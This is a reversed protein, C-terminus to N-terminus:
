AAMHAEAGTQRTGSRGESAAETSDDHDEDVAVERIGGLGDLLDDVLKSLEGTVIAVNADFADVEAEQGAFVVDLFQLKKLQMDDSLMFSVRSSWTMAVKTPMKGAQLHQKIEDLDLNHRSYKVASKAEDVAKLECDQDLTFPAPAVSERLWEAMGTAPAIATQYRSVKFSELATALLTTVDDFKSKSGTDVGLLRKHPDIWVSLEQQKCFAKPLLERTIEEKLLAKEKKSPVRGTKEKIEAVRDELRRKVVSAPLVRQEITVKMIWQGGISEVLRGHQLGRAPSFGMSKPQTPACAVFTAKAADAEVKDLSMAWASDIRCVMLNKFMSMGRDRKHIAWRVVFEGTREGSLM